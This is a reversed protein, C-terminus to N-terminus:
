TSENAYTVIPEWGQGENWLAVGLDIDNQLVFHKDSHNPGTYLRLNNLHQPTTIVFPASQTGTGSPFHPQALLPIIGVAIIIVFVFPIQIGKRYRVM